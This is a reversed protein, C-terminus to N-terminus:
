WSKIHTSNGFKATVGQKFLGTNPSVNYKFTTITINYITGIFRKDITCPKWECRNSIIRLNYHMAMFICNQPNENSWVDQPM